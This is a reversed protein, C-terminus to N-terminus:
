RQRGRSIRPSRSRVRRFATRTFVETVVGLDYARRADLKQGIVLFHRACNIGLREIWTAHIGDGPAVNNAVDPDQFWAQESAVVVDDLVAFESPIPAPVNVAAAVPLGCDICSQVMRRCHCAVISWVGLWKGQGDDGRCLWRRPSHRDVDPRYLPHLRRAHVDRM